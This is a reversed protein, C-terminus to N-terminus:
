HGEKVMAASYLTCRNRGNRKSEYLATDALRIIELLNESHQPYVAIGTSVTVSLVNGQYDYVSRALASRLREAFSFATESNVSHLFIIFEEGGYRGVYDSGRVTNKMIEATKKLVFDGAAHGYTDNFKKFFDIDLMLVACSGPYRQYRLYEEELKELFARRNLVATLGDIRAHFEQERVYTIKDLVAALMKVFIDLLVMDPQSFATDRYRIVDVVGIINDKFYLPMATFYRERIGAHVRKFEDPTLFVSKKIDLVKANAATIIGFALSEDTVATSNPYLISRLATKKANFLLIDLKDYDLQTKLIETAAEIIHEETTASIFIELIGRFLEKIRREHQWITTFYNRMSVTHLVHYLLLAQGDNLPAKADMIYFYYKNEDLKCTFVAASGYKKEGFLRDALQLTRNEYIKHKALVAVDKIEDDTGLFEDKSEDVNYIKGDAVYVAAAKIVPLYKNCNHLFFRLLAKNTTMQAINSLFEDFATQKTMLAKSSVASKEFVSAQKIRKFRDTALLFVCLAFVVTSLILLLTMSFLIGVICLIVGGAGAIAEAPSIFFHKM